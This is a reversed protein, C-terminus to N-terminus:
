SYFTGIKCQLLTVLLATIKFKKLIDTAFCSWEVGLYILWAKSFKMSIQETTDAHNFWLCDFLCDLLRWRM